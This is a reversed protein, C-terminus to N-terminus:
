CSSIIILILYLFPVGGPMGPLLARQQACRYAYYRRYASVCFATAVRWAAMGFHKFWVLWIFSNIPSIM